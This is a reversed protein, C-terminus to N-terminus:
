ADLASNTPVSGADFFAVFDKTSGDLARRANGSMRRDLLHPVAKGTDHSFTTFLPWDVNIDMQMANVCGMGILTQAFQEADVQDAMVYAVRGDAVTCVGSRKVYVANGNDAGWWVGNASGARVNSRGGDVILELNQRMSAWSGDDFVDRGLVGLVVRGTRDIALTADGQRLPKVVTGESMYGGKIHDLRFGGNMAAVLSPQLDNPVRNGRTWSGGPLESGNFLGARLHTQDIVVMTAVVGGASHLPRMSTAWMADAGGATAVPAWQGEGKLPPTFVPVLPAPPAPAAPVTTAPVTTAPATAGPQTTATVTTAPSTTTPPASPATALGLDTAPEKSPPTRYAAAELWDIVAGYGHDRGWTAVRSSFRDGNDPIAYVLLSVANWVVVAGLVGATAWWARSRGSQWRQTMAMAAVGTTATVATAGVGGTVWAAVLLAAAVLAAVPLSIASWIRRM